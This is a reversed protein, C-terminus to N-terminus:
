SWHDHELDHGSQDADSENEKDSQDADNENDTDPDTDWDAEGGHAERWEANRERTDGSSNSTYRIITHAFNTYGSGRKPHSSVHMYIANRGHNTDHIGLCNNDVLYDRFHHENDSVESQLRGPIGHRDASHKRSARRIPFAEEPTQARGKKPGTQVIKGLEFLCRLTFWGRSDTGLNRKIRAMLQHASVCGHGSIKYNYKPLGDEETLKKPVKLRTMYYGNGLDVLNRRFEDDYAVNAVPDLENENFVKYVLGKFIGMWYTGGTYSFPLYPGDSIFREVDWGNKLLQGVCTPDKIEGDTEKKGSLRVLVDGGQGNKNKVLIAMGVSVMLASGMVNVHVNLGTHQRVNVINQKSDDSLKNGYANKGDRQDILRKGVNACLEVYKEANNNMIHNVGEQCGEVTVEETTCLHYEEGVITKAIVGLVDNESPLQFHRNGEVVANPDDHQKALATCVYEDLDIESNVGRDDAETNEKIHAMLKGKGTLAVPQGANPGHLIVTRIKRGMVTKLYTEIQKPNRNYPHAQLIRSILQIIDAKYNMTEANAHFHTTYLVQRRRDASITGDPVDYDDANIADTNFDIYDGDVNIYKEDINHVVGDSTEVTYFVQDIYERIENVIIISDETSVDGSRPM